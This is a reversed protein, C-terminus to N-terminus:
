AERGEEWLKRYGPCRGLMEGHTGRETIRGNEVYCIQDANVITRLHHAVVILTKGRTMAGLAEQIRAENEPDASATAEDLVLIPADKMMARLIAIRQKEGGSLRAGATGAKTMYGDPLASIFDHCGAKKAAAIIEDDTADPRGKRINDMITMDFLFTEQEVYAIMGNLGEQSWSSLPKGGILIEGEGADWYGAILKAITSKGSGSPGVLATM